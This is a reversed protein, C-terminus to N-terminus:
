LVHNQSQMESVIRKLEEERQLIRVELQKQETIDQAFKIIKILQGNEDFTPVYRCKLWVEQGKKTIRMFDGHQVQGVRLNKWFLDYEPSAAYAPKVFTRHHCGQIEELRYGMVSLFQNNARIVTGDLNFEITALAFNVADALSGMQMGKRRMEEQTAQMEEMNQRMEEEQARMQEGQLQAEELLEKMRESDKASAITSAMSEALKEVFAIEFPELVRFSALEVVGYVKDNLKLPVILICSPTAGGLGSTIRVYNAPVATMFLTDGELASQGVLGEGLQITKQVYKKREFAYCAIQELYVTDEQEQTIFLSGQNAGVYKVLNSILEDVLGSTNRGNGRLIESFRAQGVTAWNRKKDEAAVHALQTQMQILANGLVDKESVPKFVTDLKGNGIDASFYAARQLSEVLVNSARIMEGLEDETEPLKEPLEGQALTQVHNKVLMIGQVIGRIIFISFVATILTATITLFIVFLNQQKNSEQGAISRAILINQQKKSIDSLEKTVKTLLPGAESALIHAAEKIAHLEIKAQMEETHISDIATAEKLQKEIIASVRIQSKKMKVLNESVQTLLVREQSTWCASTQQLTSLLAPIQQQYINSRQQLYAPDQLLIFSRTLIGTQTAQERLEKTAYFTPIQIQILDESEKLMQLNQYVVVTALTVLPITFLLLLGIIKSKITKVKFGTKESPHTANVQM